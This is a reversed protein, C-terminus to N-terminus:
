ALRLTAEQMAYIYTLTHELISKLNPMSVLNCSKEYKMGFNNVSVVFIPSLKQFYLVTSFNYRVIFFRFHLSARCIFCGKKKQACFNTYVALGLSVPTKTGSFFRHVYQSVLCFRCLIWTFDVFFERIM